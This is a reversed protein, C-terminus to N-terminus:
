RGSMTDCGLFSRYRAPAASLNGAQNIGLLPKRPPPRAALAPGVIRPKSGEEAVSERIYTQSSIVETSLQVFESYTDDAICLQFTM